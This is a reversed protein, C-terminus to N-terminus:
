DKWIRESFNCGSQKMITLADVLEQGCKWIEKSDPIKKGYKIIMDLGFLLLGYTEAGKTKMEDEPSAGLM